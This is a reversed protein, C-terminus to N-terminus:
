KIIAWYVWNIVEKMKEFDLTDIIDTSKHYNKNRYFSTDTIMYANYWFEWYNRHDSFDIWNIYNPASLSKVNINSYKLMSYKIDKIDFDYIKWVIAIYNWNSPYFRSLFRIPYNQIKENSFYWIMELSIMYKVKENNDFLSKAHIYSWMEKWSFFPMEETNYAVLEISNNIKSKNKWIMSALELIWAIWSANDDAWVFNEKIKDNESLFTNDSDVDYHAWIIIKEKNKNDFNCIINKYNNWWADYNQYRIKDCWANKFLEYIYEAVKDLTEIEKYNREKETTTLYTVHNILNQKNATIDQKNKSPEIFIPNVILYYFIIFWLFILTYFTYRIHKLKIKKIIFLKNNNITIYLFNM